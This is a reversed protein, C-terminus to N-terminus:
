GELAEARQSEGDLNDFAGESEGSRFLDPRFTGRPVGTVQELQVAREAPVKGHLMKNVATQSVGMKRALARQSGALKIAKLMGDNVENWEKRKRLSLKIKEFQGSDNHM